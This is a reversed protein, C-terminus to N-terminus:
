GIHLKLFKISISIELGWGLGISILPSYSYENKAPRLENVNSKHPVIHIFESDFKYM